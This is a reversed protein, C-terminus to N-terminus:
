ERRCRQLRMALRNPKRGPVYPIGLDPMEVDAGSPGDQHLHPADIRRDGFAFEPPVRCDEFEGAFEFGGAPNGVDDSQDGIDPDM